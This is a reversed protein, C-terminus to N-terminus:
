WELTRYPSTNNGNVYIEGGEYPLIGALVKALTSKGSGSEGTVAVFEGISFSLSVSNLGMVVSQGATYYKSINEMTLYASM